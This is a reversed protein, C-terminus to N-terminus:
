AAPELEGVYALVTWKGDRVCLITSDIQTWRDSNNIIDAMRQIDTLYNTAPHATQM